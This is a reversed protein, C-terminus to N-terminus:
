NMLAVGSATSIKCNTHVHSWHTMVFFLHINDLMPIYWEPCTTLRHTAKQGTNPQKSPKFIQPPSQGALHSGAPNSFQPILKSTAQQPDLSGYPNLQYAPGVSMIDDSHSQHQHQHTMSTMPGRIQYAPGMVMVDDSVPVPAAMNHEDDPDIIVVM